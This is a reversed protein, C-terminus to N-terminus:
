QNENNLDKLLEQKRKELEKNTLKEYEEYPIGITKVTGEHIVNKINKWKGKGQHILKYIIATINPHLKKTKIVKVTEATTENGDKGVRIKTIEETEKYSYGRALASLKRETRELNKHEQENKWEKKGKKYSDSFDSYKKLWEYFTDKSIDLVDKAIDENSLGTKSYEYVKKNHIDPNYKNYLKRKKRITKKEKIM